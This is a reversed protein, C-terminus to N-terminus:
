PERGFIDRHMFYKMAICHTRKGNVSGTNWFANSRCGGGCTYKLTCGSCSDIQDVPSCMNLVNNRIDEFRDKRLNGLKLEDLMLNVCPYVNGDSSISLVTKGMGCFRSPFRTSYTVHKCFNFHARAVEYNGYFAEVIKFAEIIEHEDLSLESCSNGRGFNELVSILPFLGRNECYRLTDVLDGLNNKSLVIGVSPCYGQSNLLDISDLVTETKGRLKNNTQPNISDLSIMIRTSKPVYKLKELINPFAGNTTISYTISHKNLYDVLKNFDSYVLPEGGMLNFEIKPNYDVVKQIITIWENIDIDTNQPIYEGGNADVCCYRCRLNCRSTLNLYVLQLQDSQENFTKTVVNNHTSVWGLANITDLFQFIIVPDIGLKKESFQVIESIPLTGDFMCVITGLTDDIKLLDHTEPNYCFIADNQTEVIIHRLDLCIEDM